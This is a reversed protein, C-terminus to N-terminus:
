ILVLSGYDYLPEDSLSIVKVNHNKCFSDIEAYEPHLEINGTFALMNNELKGSAGGIFGYDYPDLKVSHTKLLLVDYGNKGLVDAVSKDETIVAKDSVVAINCKAYGQKIDIIRYGIKKAYDLVSKSASDAKCIIDNGVLACNLLIDDPYKLPAYRKYEGEIETVNDSTRVFTKSSIFVRDGIKLVNMDAHASVSDEFIVNKEVPSVTYGLQTLNCKIQETIRCDCFVTKKM